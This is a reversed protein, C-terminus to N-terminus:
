NNVGIFLESSLEKIQAYLGCLKKGQRESRKREDELQTKLKDASTVASTIGEVLRISRQKATDIDSTSSISPPMELGLATYFSPIAKNLMEDLVGAVHAHEINKKELQTKLDAVASDNGMSEIKTRLVENEKALKAEAAEAAEAEAAEAEESATQAEARAKTLKEVQTKLTNVERRTTELKGTLETKKTNALVPAQKEKELERKAESLMAEHANFEETMKATIKRVRETANKREKAMDKENAERAAQMAKRNAETAECVEKRATDRMAEAAAQREVDTARIKQVEAEKAAIAKKKEEELKATKTEFHTQWERPGNASLQLFAKKSLEHAKMEAEHAKKLADHTVREAEFAKTATERAVQEAMRTKQEMHNAKRLAEQTQQLVVICSQAVNLQNTLNTLQSTMATIRVSEQTNIANTFIQRCVGNDSFASGSCNDAKVGTYEM